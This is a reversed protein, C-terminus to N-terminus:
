RSEEQGSLENTGPRGPPAASASAPAMRTDVGRDPTVHLVRIRAPDPAVAQEGGRWGVTGGPVGTGVVCGAKIGRLAAALNLAM